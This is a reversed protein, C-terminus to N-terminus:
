CILGGTAYVDEVEKEFYYRIITREFYEKNDILFRNFPSIIGVQVCKMNFEECLENIKEIDQIEKFDVTLSFKGRKLKVKYNDMSKFNKRLYKNIKYDVDRKSLLCDIYRGHADSLLEKNPVNRDIM